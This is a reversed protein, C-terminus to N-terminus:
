LGMVADIPLAMVLGKAESRMGCKESIGSMIEMKKEAESLILVIEKEEQM